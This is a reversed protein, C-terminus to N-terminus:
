ASPHKYAFSFTYSAFISNKAVSANVKCYFLPRIRTKEGFITLPSPSGNYPLSINAVMMYTTMKVRYRILPSSHQGEFHGQPSRNNVLNKLNKGVEPM